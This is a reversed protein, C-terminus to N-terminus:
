EGLFEPNLRRRYAIEGAMERGHRRFLAAVSEADVASINIITVGGGGGRTPIRGHRMPIVAEERSPNDGVVMLKPGRVVFGEAASPVAFGGRIIGGGAVSVTPGVGKFGSARVGGGGGGSIAASLGSIGAQVAMHVFMRGLDRLAEKAYDTGSKLHGLDDLMSQFVGEAINGVGQITDKLEQYREVNEEVALGIKKTGKEAEFKEKEARAKELRAILEDWIKFGELGRANLFKILERGLLSSQELSKRMAALYAPEGGKAAIEEIEKYSEALRELENLAAGITRLPQGMKANLKEQAGGAAEAAVRNNDLEARFEAWKDIAKQAADEGLEENEMLQRFVKEFEDARGVYEKGMLRAGMAVRNLAAAQSGTLSAEGEALWELGEALVDYLNAITQNGVRGIENWTMKLRDVARVLMFVGRAGEDFAWALKVGLSEAELGSGTFARALESISMAFGRLADTPGAAMVSEKWKRWEDNLEKSSRLLFSFAAGTVLAKMGLSISRFSADATRGFSRIDREVRRFEKSAENRLRILIGIETERAM